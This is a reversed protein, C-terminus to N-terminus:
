IRARLAYWALGIWEHLAFGSDSWAHASPVFAAFDPRAPGTLHTPAATAALTTRRFALLSRRMHWGQTVLYAAGIGDARLMAASFEANEWTTASRDEVWRVPADFETALVRAMAQAIPPSGQRIVGGSVLIPLGTRQHLVAGARLRQLTLPGVDPPDVIGGPVARLDEAALIVIAAPAAADTAAAPAAGETIAAPAPGEARTMTLDRELAVMLLWATVPLSLVVLLGFGLMAIWGGVRRRLSRRGTDAMLALGAAVVLLLNVPPEVLATQLAGALSM